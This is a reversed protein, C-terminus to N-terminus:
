LLEFKREKTMPKTVYIFGKDTWIGGIIEAIDKSIFQKLPQPFIGCDIKFIGSVQMADVNDIDIYLENDVEFFWCPSPYPTDDEKRKWVVVFDDCMEEITNAEKVAHAKVFNERPFAWDFEMTDLDVIQNNKTRIYRM